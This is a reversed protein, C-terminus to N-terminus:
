GAIGSAVAFFVAIRIIAALVVTIVIGRKVFFGIIAAVIACVSSVLIFPTLIFVSFYVWFFCSLGFSVALAALLHRLFTMM